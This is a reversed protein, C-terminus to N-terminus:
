PCAWGGRLDGIHVDELELDILEVIDRHPKPRALLPSSALPKRSAGSDQGRHMKVCARSDASTPQQRGRASAALRVGCAKM